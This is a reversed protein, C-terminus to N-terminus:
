AKILEWFEFGKWSKGDCQIEFINYIKFLKQTSGEEFLFSLVVFNYIEFINILKTYFNDENFEM